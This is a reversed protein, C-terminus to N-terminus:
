IASNSSAAAEAGADLNPAGGPADEPKFKSPCKAMLKSARFTESGAELHGEVVVEAGGKFLDPTELSTYVVALGVESGQAAHPPESVVQFRVQRLQVDREISDPAVYGHLRAAEGALARPSARLEDLDQYYAFSGIADLQTVAYWALLLAVLTAGGAIQVGKTM